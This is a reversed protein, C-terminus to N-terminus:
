ALYLKLSPVLIAQQRSETLLTLKKGLLSCSFCSNQWQMLNELRGRQMYKPKEFSFVVNISYLIGIGDHLTTVHEGHSITNVLAWFFLCLRM